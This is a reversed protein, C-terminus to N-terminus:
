PAPTQAVSGTFRVPIGVDLCKPETNTAQLVSLDKKEQISSSYYSFNFNLLQLNWIFKFPANQNSSM